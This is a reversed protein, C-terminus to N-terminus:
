DESGLDLDIIQLYKGAYEVSEKTSLRFDVKAFQGNVNATVQFLGCHKCVIVLSSTQAIGTGRGSTIFHFDHECESGSRPQEM